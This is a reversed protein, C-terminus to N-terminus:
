ASYFPHSKLDESQFATKTPCSGFSAIKKPGLSALIDVIQIVRWVVDVKVNNKM